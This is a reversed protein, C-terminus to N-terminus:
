LGDDGFIYYKFQFHFGTVDTYGSPASADKVYNIVLNTGDTYYEIRQFLPDPSVSVPLQYFQTPSAQFDKTFVWAMPTFSYGHAITAINTTGTGPDSEFTYDVLDFHSPTKTMDVKPSPYDSHVACQEPTLDPDDADYGPLTIILGASM